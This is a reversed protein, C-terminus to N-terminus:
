PVVGDDVTGILGTGREARQREAEERAWVAGRSFMEYSSAPQTTEVIEQITDVDARESASLQEYAIAGPGLPYPTLPDRASDPDIYGSSGPPPNTLPPPQPPPDGSVVGTRGVLILAVCLSAVGTGGLIKWRARM